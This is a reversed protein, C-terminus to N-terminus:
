NRQRYFSNRGAESDTLLLYFLVCLDGASNLALLHHPGEEGARERNTPTLGPCSFDFVQGLDCWRDFPPSLRHDKRGKKIGKQGKCVGCLCMSDRVWYVPAIPRVLGM